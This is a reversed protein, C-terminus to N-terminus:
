RREDVDFTDSIKEDVDSSEKDDQLDLLEYKSKHTM